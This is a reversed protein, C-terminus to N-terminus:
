FLEQEACRIMHFFFEDTGKAGIWRTQSISHHTSCCRATFWYLNGIDEFLASVRRAHALHELAVAESGTQGHRQQTFLPDDTSQHYTSFRGPLKAGFHDLKQLGKRCLRHQRDLVSPEKPFDFILAALDLGGVAM